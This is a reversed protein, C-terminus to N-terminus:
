DVPFPQPQKPTGKGHKSALRNKYNLGAPNGRLFMVAAESFAWKLHVNGIKNGSTGYRKGASERSCKVLRSYSAFEQVRPFRDIDGIEYLITLSIIKGTGYITRLLHYANPDHSKASDLVHKELARIQVGLDDILNFDVQMNASVDPDTFHDLMEERCFKHTINNRGFPSQNYQSNTNQIHTILEARQRVLYNRRRLLDRTARMSAPYVYAMPFTGGKLISAIKWSDIRDNKAKGGHIAKMYLAHGLVFPIGEAACLDAIWYWTFICEVGVVIDSRYPQIAKLFAEPEAKMNKHLVTEGDSSIICLYMVRAHLDIGCYYQHTTTYFRM